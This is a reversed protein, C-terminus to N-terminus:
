PTKTQVSPTDKSSKRLVPTSGSLTTLETLTNPTTTYVDVLVNLLFVGDKIDTETRCAYGNRQLKSRLTDAKHSFGAAALGHQGQGGQAQEGRGSPHCFPPRDFLLPRKKAIYEVCDTIDDPSFLM